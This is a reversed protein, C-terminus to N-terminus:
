SSSVVVQAVYESGESLKIRTPGQMPSFTSTGHGSDKSNSSTTKTKATVQQQQETRCKMIVAVRASYTVMDSM